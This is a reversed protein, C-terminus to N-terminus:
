AVVGADPHVVLVRYRRGAEFASWCGDCCYAGCDPCDMVDVLVGRASVLAALEFAPAGDEVLRDIAASAYEEITM